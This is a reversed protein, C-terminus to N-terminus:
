TGITQSSKNQNIIGGVSFTVKKYNQIELVTGLLPTM